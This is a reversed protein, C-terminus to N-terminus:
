RITKSDFILDEAMKFIDERINDVESKLKNSFNALTERDLSFGAQEIQFLVFMLPTEIEKFLEVTSSEKLSILLENYM